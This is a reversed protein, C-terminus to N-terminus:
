MARTNHRCLTKFVIMESRPDYNTARKQSCSYADMPVWKNWLKVWWRCIFSWISRTFWIRSSISLDQMISQDQYNPYSNAMPQTRMCCYSSLSDSSADNSTRYLRRRHPRLLPVDYELCSLLWSTMDFSSHLCSVGVRITQPQLGHTGLPKMTGKPGNTREFRPIFNQKLPSAQLV